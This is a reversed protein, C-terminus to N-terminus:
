GARLDLPVDLKRSPCNECAGKSPPMEAPAPRGRTDIIEAAPRKRGRSRRSGRGPRSHASGFPTSRERCRRPLAPGVGSRPARRARVPQRTTGRPAPRLPPERDGRPAPRRSRGPRASGGGRGRARGGRRGRRRRPSTTGRAARTPRGAVRAGPPWPRRTPADAGRRGRRSAAEPLIRSVSSPAMGMRAGVEKQTLGEAYRALASARTEEALPRSREAVRVGARM